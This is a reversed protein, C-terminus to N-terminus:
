RMEGEWGRELAKPTSHLIQAPGNEYARWFRPYADYFVTIKFTM